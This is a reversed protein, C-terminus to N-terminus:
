ICWMMTSPVLQHVVVSSCKWKKRMMMMMEFAHHRHMSRFHRVWKVCIAMMQWWVDFSSTNLREVVILDNSRGEGNGDESITFFSISLIYLTFLMKQAIFITMVSLFEGSEHISCLVIYGGISYIDIHSHTYRNGWEGCVSCHDFLSLSYFFHNWHTFRHLIPSVVWNPRRRQRRQRRQRCWHSRRM